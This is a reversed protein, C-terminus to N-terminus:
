SKFKSCNISYRGISRQDNQLQVPMLTIRLVHLAVISKTLNVNFFFCKLQPLM